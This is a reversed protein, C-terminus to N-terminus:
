SGCRGCMRLSLWRTEVRFANECYTGQVGAPLGKAGDLGSHVIGHISPRLRGHAIFLGLLLVTRNMSKVVNLFSRVVSRLGRYVVSAINSGTECVRFRLRDQPILRLSGTSTRKLAPHPRNTVTNEQGVAYQSSPQLASQLPWTLSVAIDTTM